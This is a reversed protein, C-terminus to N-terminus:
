LLLVGHTRSVNKWRINATYRALTIAPLSVGRRIVRTLSKVLSSLPKCWLYPIIWIGYMVDDELGQHTSLRLFLSTQRTKRNKGRRNLCIQSAAPQPQQLSNPPRSLAKVNQESLRQCQCSDLCQPQSEFWKISVKKKFSLWPYWLLLFIKAFVMHARKWWQISWVPGCLQDLLILLVANNSM